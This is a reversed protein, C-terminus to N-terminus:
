ALMSSIYGVDNEDMVTERQVEPPANEGSEILTQDPWTYLTEKLRGKLIKMCCHTTHDHICSGSGPRWVLLLKLTNLRERRSLLYRRVLNYTGNGNDVLHRVYPEDDKTWAKILDGWDDINSSYNRMLNLIDNPNVHESDIGGSGLLSQIKQILQQFPNNLEPHSM